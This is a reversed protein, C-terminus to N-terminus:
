VDYLQIKKLVDNFRIIMFGSAAGATPASLLPNASSGLVFESDGGAQAGVGLVITNNFNPSQTNKGVCISNLGQTFSGAGSGIAIADGGQTTFGALTGIAIADGGQFTKGASNGIAIGDQSQSDQGSLTGIAIGRLGQDLQGANTGIAIASTAQNTPVTNGLAVSSAQVPTSLVHVGGIKYQGGVPTDLNSISFTEITANTANLINTNVVNANVDTNVRFPLSAM